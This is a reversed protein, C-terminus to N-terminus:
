NVPPCMQGTEIYQVFRLQKSIIVTPINYLETTMQDLFYNDNNLAKKGAAALM